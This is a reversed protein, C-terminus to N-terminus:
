EKPLYKTMPLKIFYVIELNGDHMIDIHASNLMYFTVALELDERYKSEKLKLVEEPSTPIIAKDKIIRHTALNKFQNLTGFLGSILERLFGYLM